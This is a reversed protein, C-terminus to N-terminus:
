NGFIFILLAYHRRKWRERWLVTMNICWRRLCCDPLCVSLGFFFLYLDTKPIVCFPSLNFVDSIHKKEETAVLDPVRILTLLFEVLVATCACKSHWRFSSEGPMYLLAQCTLSFCRTWGYLKGWILKIFVMLISQIQHTKAKRHHYHKQLICCM